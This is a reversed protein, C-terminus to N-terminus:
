VVAGPLALDKVWQPLGPISGVVEHNRTPNMEATGCCSNGIDTHKLFNNWMDSHYSESHHTPFGVYEHMNSLTVYKFSLDVNKHDDILKKKKYFVTPMWVLNGDHNLPLCVQSTDCDPRAWHTLSRANGPATAYTASSAQIWRQQLQPTPCCSCSWNQGRAQSVGYAVPAARFFVFYFFLYFLIFYQLWESCAGLIHWRPM